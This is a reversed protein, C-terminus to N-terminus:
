SIPMCILGYNCSCKKYTDKLHTWGILRQTKDIDKFMYKVWNDVDSQELLEKLDYFGFTKSDRLLNSFCLIQEEVNKGTFKMYCHLHVNMKKTLECVVTGKFLSFTTDKLIREIQKQPTLMYWKPKLTLTLAWHTNDDIPKLSARYAEGPKVVLERM